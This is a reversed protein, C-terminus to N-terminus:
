TDEEPNQSNFAEKIHDIISVADSNHVDDLREVMELTDAADDVVAIATRILLPRIDGVQGSILSSQSYIADLEKLCQIVEDPRIPHQLLNRM